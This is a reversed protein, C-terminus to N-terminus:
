RLSERAVEVLESAPDVDPEADPDVESDALSDEGAAEALGASDDDDAGAGAVEEVLLPDVAEQGPAGGTM